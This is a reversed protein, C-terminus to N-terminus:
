VSSGVWSMLAGLYCLALGLWARRDLPLPAHDEEYKQWFTIQRRVAIYLFLLLLPITLAYGWQGGAVQVVVFAIQCLCYVAFLTWFVIVSIRPLAHADPSVPM